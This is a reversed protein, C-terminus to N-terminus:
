NGDVGYSAGVQHVFTNIHTARGRNDNTGYRENSARCYKEHATARGFLLRAAKIAAGLYRKAAAFHNRRAIKVQRICCTQGEVAQVGFQLSTALIALAAIGDHTCLVAASLVVTEGERNVRRDNTDRRATTPSRLQPYGAALVSSSQLADPIM